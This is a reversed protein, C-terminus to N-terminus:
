TFIYAVIWYSNIWEILKNMWEILKNMGEIIWEHFLENSSITWPRTWSSFICLLLHRKDRSCTTYCLTVCRTVKIKLWSLKFNCRFDFIKRPLLFKSAQNKDFNEESRNFKLTWFYLFRERFCEKLWYLIAGAGNTSGSSTSGNSSSGRSWDDSWDEPFWIWSLFFFKVAGM